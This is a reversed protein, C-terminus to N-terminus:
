LVFVDWLMAALGAVFAAAVAHGAPARPQLLGLLLVAVAFGAVGSGADQGSLRVFPADATFGDAEAADLAFNWIMWGAAAGIGAVPYWRHQRPFPLLWVAAAAVFGAVVGTLIIEWAHFM